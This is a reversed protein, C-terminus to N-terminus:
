AHTESWIRLPRYYKGAVKNVEVRQAMKWKGNEM